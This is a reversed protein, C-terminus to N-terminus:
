REFDDFGGAENVDVRKREGWSGAGGGRPPRAVKYVAWDDIIADVLQFAARLRVAVGEALREDAFFDLQEDLAGAAFVSVHAVASALSVEVDEEFTVRCAFAVERADADTAGCGM